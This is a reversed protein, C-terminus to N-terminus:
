GQERADGRHCRRGRRFSGGHLAEKAPEKGDVGEKAHEERSNPEEIEAVMFGQLFSTSNRIIRELLDGNLMADIDEAMTSTSSAMIWGLLTDATDEPHERIGAMRTIHLLEAMCGSPDIAIAEHFGEVVQLQERMM